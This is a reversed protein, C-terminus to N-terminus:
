NFNSYRTETLGHDKICESIAFFLFILPIFLSHYFYQSFLKVLRNSEKVIPYSIFHLNMGVVGFLLIMIGLLGKSLERVILIKIFYTYLIITYILYILIL